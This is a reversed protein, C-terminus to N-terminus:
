SIKIVPMNKILYNRTLSDKATFQELEASSIFNNELIIENFKDDLDFRTVSLVDDDVITDMELVDYNGGCDNFNYLPCYCMLCSFKEKCYTSHCPFWECEKNQFFKYSNKM